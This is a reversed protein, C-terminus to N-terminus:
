IKDLNKILMFSIKTSHSTIEIFEVFIWKIKIISLIDEYKKNKTLNIEPLTIINLVLYILPSFNKERNIISTNKKMIDIYKNIKLGLKILNNNPHSPNPTM